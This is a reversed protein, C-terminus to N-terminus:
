YRRNFLQILLSGLTQPQLPQGLTLEYAAKLALPDFEFFARSPRELVEASESESLYSLTRVQATNFLISDYERGMRKLAFTGCFLLLVPYKAGQM